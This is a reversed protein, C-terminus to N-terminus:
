GTRPLRMVVETGTGATSSLEITGGHKEIIRRAIPLGLGTGGSWQDRANAGRYFREFVHALDQAAIGRGHDRVSIEAVNNEGRLAVEVVTGSDAYKVANDLLILVVQQLRGPDARVSLKREARILDLQIRRERGLVSADEVAQGVLENLEVPQFHFRIEDTESRALFLLDDVLRAIDDARAVVNVLARRYEDEPKSAGRLVVEAEGRLATLPTRLEHSIDTLLRVRQRDTAVLQRNVDALQDTRETVQRELGQQAELILARQRGLQEAMANFRRSLEAHEDDGRYVIRHDLDGGEIALAGATLAKIPREISRAFLFGSVLAIGLLVGSASLIALKEFRTLRVLDAEIQVVENREDALQDSIHQAFEADLRNEIGARFLAVADDRRGAQDLVLLREVARDIEGLLVQMRDLRESEIREEDREQPGRISAAEGDTLRRMQALSQSVQMRASEFDPREPEGVLLLEAIQESYRNADIALQYTAALQQRSRQARDLYYDSAELGVFVFAAMAAVAFSIVIQLARIRGRISLL